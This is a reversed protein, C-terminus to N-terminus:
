SNTHSSRLAAQGIGKVEPWTCIFHIVLILFLRKEGNHKCDTAMCGVLCRAGKVQQSQIM